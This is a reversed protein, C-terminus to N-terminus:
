AAKASARAHAERAHIRELYAAIAPRSGVHGRSAAFDLVWGLMPDAATFDDGCAYVRGSLETEVWDLAGGIESGLMGVLPGPVIGPVMGSNVILDMVLWAAMSGETWHLWQLYVSRAPTGPAPALQPAYHEVLYEVIAGSEVLLTDDDRLMPSKGLPHIERLAAPARFSADRDYVEVQYDIGIEELLWIIRQARSPRLHYVTIM